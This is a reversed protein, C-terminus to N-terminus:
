GSVPLLVRGCKHVCTFRVAHGLAGSVVRHPTTSARMGVYARVFELWFFVTLVGTSERESRGRGVDGQRQMDIDHKGSATIDCDHKATSKGAIALVSM